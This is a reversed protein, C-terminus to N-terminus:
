AYRFIALAIMWANALYYSGDARKCEDRQPSDTAMGRRRRASQEVEPIRRTRRPRPNEYTSSAVPSDISSGSVSSRMRASVMGGAQSFTHIQGHGFPWM